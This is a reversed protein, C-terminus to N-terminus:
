QFSPESISAIARMSLTGTPKSTFYPLLCHFRTSCKDWCCRRLLGMMGVNRADTSHYAARPSLSTRAHMVLLAAAGGNSQEADRGVPIFMGLPLNLHPAVSILVISSRHSSWRVHCSFLVKFASDHSHQDHDNYQIYIHNEDRMKTFLRPDEIDMKLDLILNGIEKDIAKKATQLRIEGSM